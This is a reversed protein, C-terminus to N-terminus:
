LYLNDLKEIMESYSNLKKATSLRARTDLINYKLKQSVKDIESFYIEVEFKTESLINSVTKVSKAHTEFFTRVNMKRERALFVDFAGDIYKPIILVIKINSSSFKKINKLKVEFGTLNKLTGDYVLIDL